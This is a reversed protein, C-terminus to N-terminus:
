SIYALLIRADNTYRFTRLLVIKKLDYYYVMKYNGTEFMVYIMKKWLPLIEYTILRAAPSGSVVPYTMYDMKKLDLMTLASKESWWYVESHGNGPIMRRGSIYTLALKSLQRRIPDVSRLEKLKTKMDKDLVVLNYQTAYVVRGECDFMIGEIPNNPEKNWTSLTNEPNQNDVVEISGNRTGLYLRNPGVAIASIGSNSGAYPARIEFNGESLQQM